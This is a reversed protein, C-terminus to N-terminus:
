LVRLDVEEKMVRRALLVPSVLAEALDLTEPDELTVLDERVDLNVPNDVSDVEEMKALTELSVKSEQPEMRVLIVRPVLSEEQVLFVLLVLQDEPDLKELPVQQGVHELIVVHDRADKTDQVDMKVLSVRKDTEAQEELQEKTGLPDWLDKCDVNATKDMEEEMVTLDEQVQIALFVWSEQMELMDWIDEPDVHGQYVMKVLNALPDREEKLDMKALPELSELFVMRDMTEM